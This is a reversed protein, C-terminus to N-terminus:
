HLLAKQEAFLKFEQPQLLMMNINNTLDNTATYICHVQLRLTISMKKLVPKVIDIM